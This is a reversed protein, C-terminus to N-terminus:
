TETPSSLLDRLKPLMHQAYWTPWDDDRRGLRAEYEGHAQEADRLLDALQEVTIMLCGGRAYSAARHQRLPPVPQGAPPNGGTGASYDIKEAHHNMAAGCISCAVTPADNLSVEDRGARLVRGMWVLEDLFKKLRRPLAEDVLGGDPDFVKGVSSVNVDWFISVLGLERM